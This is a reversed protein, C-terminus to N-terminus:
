ENDSSAFRLTLSRIRVIVICLTLLQAGGGNLTCAFDAVSSVVKLAVSIIRILAFRSPPPPTHPPPPPRTVPSLKRDTDTYPHAAPIPTSKQESITHYHIKKLMLNYSYGCKKM